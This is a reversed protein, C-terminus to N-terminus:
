PETSMLEMAADAIGGIIGMAHKMSWFTSQYQPYVLLIKMSNKGIRKTEGDERDGLRYDSSASWGPKTHETRVKM